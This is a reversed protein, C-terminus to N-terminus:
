GRLHKRKGLDIVRVVAPSLIMNVALEILFNGGVFAILIYKWVSEYGAGSAWERLTDFFFIRCGLVFIGTNVVPATFAAGFCAATRSKSEILKYVLASLLGATMGKVLVTIITGPVSIAFFATADGNLLVVAGFVFGLWAGASIGYLAAGVVIPILVLSIQFVGFRIVVASMQLVVVVATLLGLGVAKKTSEKMNFEEQQQETLICRLTM